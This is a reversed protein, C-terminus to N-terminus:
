LLLLQGDEVGLWIALLQGLMGLAAQMLWTPSFSGTSWVSPVETRIMPEQKQDCLCLLPLCGDDRGSGGSSAGRGEASTVSGCSIALALTKKEGGEHKVKGRGPALCYLSSCESVVAHKPYICFPQAYGLLPESLVYPSM